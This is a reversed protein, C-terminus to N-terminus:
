DYTKEEWYKKQLESDTPTSDEKKPGVFTKTKPFSTSDKRRPTGFDGQMGGIASPLVEARYGCRCQFTKYHSGMVFEEFLNGCSNCLYERLPM